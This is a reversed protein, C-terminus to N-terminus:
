APREHHGEYGAVGLDDDFWRIPGPQEELGNGLVFSHLITQMDAKLWTVAVTIRLDVTKQREARRDRLVMARRIAIAPHHQEIWRPVLEAHGARRRLTLGSMVMPPGADDAAICRRGRLCDPPTTRLCGTM